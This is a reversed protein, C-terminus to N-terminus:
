NGHAKGLEAARARFREALVIAPTMGCQRCVEAAELWIAADHRSLIAASDNDQAIAHNARSKAWRVFEEPSALKGWARWEATVIVSLTSRMEAVRAALADISSTALGLQSELREIDAKYQEIQAYQESRVTVHDAVALILADREAELNKYEQETRM